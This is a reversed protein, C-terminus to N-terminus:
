QGHNDTYNFGKSNLREIQKQRYDIAKQKAEDYGYDKVNFSKCHNKGNESWTAEFKHVESVGTFGSSNNKSKNRNRTNEVYPIERLNDPSNNLSNRDIHDIVKTPDISGNALFYVIRHILIAKGKYECRWYKNADCWGVPNGIIKNIGSIKWSIMSPSDSDIQFVDNWEEVFYDKAKIM